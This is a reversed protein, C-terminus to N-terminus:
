VRSGKSVAAAAAQQSSGNSPGSRQRDGRGGASSSNIGGRASQQRQKMRETDTKPCAEVDRALGCQPVFCSQAYVPDDEIAPPIQGFIMECSLDEFNPNMTLPIGFDDTFFSQTPVQVVCLLVLSPESRLLVATVEAAAIM